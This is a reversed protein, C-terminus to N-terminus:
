QILPELLHVEQFLVNKFAEHLSPYPRLELEYNIWKLSVAVGGSDHERNRGRSRAIGSKSYSRKFVLRCIKTGFLVLNHSIESRLRMNIIEVGFM